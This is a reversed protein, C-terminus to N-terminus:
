FPCLEELEDITTLVKDYNAQAVAIYNDAYDRFCRDIKNYRNIRKGKYNCERRYM